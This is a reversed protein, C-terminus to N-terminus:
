FKYTLKVRFTRGDRPNLDQAFDTSAPDRIEKDFLNFVGASFDMDKFMKRSFLTVNAVVFGPAKGGQITSRSSLSQLEIGAFLKEPYLPATFQLKGVYRPSNDLMIGTTNDIAEVINYSMRGRFGNGWNAELELGAGKVDVSYTNNFIQRAPDPAYPELTILDEVENYFVTGTLRYYKTFSQEWALEYSRITEPKLEHNAVYYINEFDFEFANPARYAQGYLAKFTSSTSAQYILGARPNVTSGFTSFHDYRVGANLTLDKTVSFEDQLFAGYSQASQSANLYSFAPEVDFNEQHQDFDYRSEVGVTVHHKELLTTNVQVDAGGWFASPTDRNVTLDPNEPDLYDFAFTGDYAYHDMYTRVLLRWNRALERSYRLEVYAREDWQENRIDTFEAGYPGNPLEKDQRGYLTELTFDRYSVSAFINRTMERDHGRVVAGPFSDSEPFVLNPNGASEYYTGSLLLKVGNSFSETWSFRGTYSGFEGSSGSAELGKGGADHGQRTVINVIGFFANNGYLSSGPGRIVEVREILDVDLPMDFGLLASDYIPDNLRHGNVNLLVRGGFDGPRNVGRIGMYSYARDSTVYAGRVGNLIDALSRYGYEEIDQKTVITVSSPADTIKQEHKSAGFVTPVKFSGLEELSMLTFDQHGGAAQLPDASKAAVGAMCVMCLVSSQKIAGFTCRPSRTQSDEM